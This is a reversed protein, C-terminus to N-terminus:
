KLDDFLLLKLCLIEWEFINTKSNLIVLIDHWFTRMRLILMLHMVWFESSIRLVFVIAIWPACSANTLVYDLRQMKLVISFDWHINRSFRGTSIIKWNPLSYLFFFLFILQFMYTRKGWVDDERYILYTNCGRYRSALARGSSTPPSFACQSHELVTDPLFTQRCLTDFNPWRVINVILWIILKGIVRQMSAVILCATSDFILLILQLALLISTLIIMVVLFFVLGWSSTWYLLLM